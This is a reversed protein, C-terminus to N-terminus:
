EGAMDAKLRLFMKSEADLPLNVRVKVRELTGDGVPVPSGIPTVTRATWPAASLTTSSEASIVVGRTAYDARRLFTFEAFRNGSDSVLEMQPTRSEGGPGALDPSKPNGGTVYEWFNSLGDGDTDRDANRDIGTLAAVDMWETWFEQPTAPGMSASEGTVWINRFQVPGSGSNAVAELLLPQFGPLEIAGGSGQSFVVDDHVLVDNWYVRVRANATKVNGSWKAATFEIDYTQWQGAGVSANVDPAKQQFIAGAGDTAPAQGAPTNLIQIEYARQLKVGSNGADQGTGGPPSLWELHLQFDKFGLKTSIDNRSPSDVVGMAGQDVTWNPATRDEDRVWNQALSSQTGDFLVLAGGPASRPPGSVYLYDVNPGNTITSTLRIANSGVTLPVKVGNTFIWSTWAGSPGFPLQQIANGNVTLNLPRTTAVGNAYRFSIWHDGTKEAEVNWTITEGIATGYDAFGTGSFGANGSAVVPGGALTALEAEYVTTPKPLVWVNRFRVPGSATSTAAQLLIPQLGPVEAPSGETITTLAVNDHVLVGNWHVTARADATKVSGNWRPATFDIDYSQWHGAGLSANATPARRGQIAASTYPWSTQGRPTNLIQIEYRGQLKVGSNAADQGLGGPPALWELHLKYDRYGNVTSIDNRAPTPVVSMAGASVTWSPVASNEDRKWNTTLSSATGDFLVTAGPPPTAPAANLYLLDVNPASNQNPTLSIANSGANLAVLVGPSYWWSTWAGTPAFPLDQSVVGNVRLRVPRNATGGNGYRFSLWHQGAKEANVTFTITEGLSNIYDAYGTGRFGSVATAVVVGGQLQASEAQYISTASPGTLGTIDSPDTSPVVQLATVSGYCGFGYLLDAPTAARWNAWSLNDAVRRINWATDANVKLWPYFEDWLGQDRVMRTIWRIGIGNFGGGDGSTGHNPFIGAANCMGDRTYRASNIASELYPLEGTIRYLASCAGVYTGQNYTFRWDTITGTSSINDDIGGNTRVLTANMWTIISKAKDLYATNGTIDYLMCAVIAGPSNVCANRSGSTGKWFLGGGLSTAWARNWVVDFNATARNLYQTDDTALYTKTFVICAWMIDDNYENWSWNTGHYDMFGKCLAALRDRKEQTPARDYADAVMEMMNAQGWFWARGGDTTEKYYARGNTQTQYFATNYADYALNADAETFARLSSASLLLISAVMALWRLFFLKPMKPYTTHCRHLVGAKDVRFKEVPGTFRFSKVRSWRTPRVVQVWM